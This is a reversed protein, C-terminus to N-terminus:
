NTALCASLTDTASTEEVTKLACRATTPVNDNPKLAKNFLLIPRPMYMHIFAENSIADICSM